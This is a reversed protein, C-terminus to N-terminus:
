PAPDAAGVGSSSAVAADSSSPAAGSSPAAAAATVINWDTSIGCRSAADVLRERTYVLGHVFKPYTLPKGVRSDLHQLAADGKGREVAKALLARVRSAITCRRVPWQRHRPRWSVAVERPADYGGRGM